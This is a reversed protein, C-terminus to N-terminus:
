EKNSNIKVENFERHDKFLVNLLRKIISSPNLNLCSVPYKYLEQRHLYPGVDSHSDLAYKGEVISYM